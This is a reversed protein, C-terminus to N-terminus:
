LLYGVVWDVYVYSYLIFKYVFSKNVPHYILLSWYGQDNTSASIFFLLVYFFHFSKQKALSLTKFVRWQGIIKVPNREWESVTLNNQKQTRIIIVLNKKTKKALPESWEWWHPPALTIFFAFSFFACAGIKFRLERLAIVWM